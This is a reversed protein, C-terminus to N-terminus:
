HWDHYCWLCQKAKPTRVIRNCKPCRNLVVQDECDRMVREGVKHSFDEYGLDLIADITPDGLNGWTQRRRREIEPKGYAEAKWRAHFAWWVTREFTTLLHSHYYIVTYAIMAHDDYNM